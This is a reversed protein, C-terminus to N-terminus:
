TTSGRPEEAKADTIMDRTGPADEDDTLLLLLRWMWKVPTMYQLPPHREHERNKTWGPFLLHGAGSPRTGGVLCGRWPGLSRARYSRSCAESPTTLPDSRGRDRRAGRPSTRRRTRSGTSRRPPSTRRRTRSGTSRRPPVDAEADAIGDLARGYRMACFGGDMQSAERLPRLAQAFRM